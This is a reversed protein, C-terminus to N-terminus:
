PKAGKIEALTATAKAYAASGYPLDAQRFELCMGELAEVAKALKAELEEAYAESEKADDRAATLQETLAEIRDAAEERADNIKGEDHEEWDRLRATLQKDDSM